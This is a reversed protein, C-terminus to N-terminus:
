RKMIMMKIISRVAAIFSDIQDRATCFSLSVHHTMPTNKLLQLLAAHEKLQIIM